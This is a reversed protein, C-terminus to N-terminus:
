FFKEMELQGIGENACKKGMFFSGIANSPDDLVMKMQRISKNTGFLRKFIQGIGKDPQFLANSFKGICKAVDDLYM